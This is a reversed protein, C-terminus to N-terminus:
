DLGLWFKISIYVTCAYICTKNRKIGNESSNWIQLNRRRGGGGEGRFKSRYFKVHRIDSRRLRRTCCVVATLVCEGYRIIGKAKRKSEMNWMARKEERRKEREMEKKANKMKVNREAQKMMEKVERRKRQECTEEALTTCRNKM